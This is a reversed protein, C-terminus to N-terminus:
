IRNELEYFALVNEVPVDAQFFHCSSMIYGGDKGLLSSLMKANARVEDPTGAPLIKQTEGAGHFTIESGFETKLKEPEMNRAATQVPDLIKVGLDIFEDILHYASGCCHLYPTAGYARALAIYESMPKKFYERFMDVSVILDLQTAFDDALQMSDLRGNAAKLLREHYDMHWDFCRKIVHHAVKQNLAMDILLDELSRILTPYYFVSAFGGLLYRDDYEKCATKVATFDWEDLNPLCLARDIEEITHCDDTAYHVIEEYVGYNNATLKLKSGGWGVLYGQADKQTAGRAVQPDVWACDVNLSDLVTKMSDTGFHRYMAQWIEGVAQFDVPTRDPQNHAVADLVRQRRKGDM